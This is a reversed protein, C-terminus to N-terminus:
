QLIDDNASVCYSFEPMVYLKSPLRYLGDSTHSSQAPSTQLSTVPKFETPSVLSLTGNELLSNCQRFLFFVYMPWNSTSADANM